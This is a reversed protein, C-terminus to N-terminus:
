NLFAKGAFSGVFKITITNDDNYTVEDPMQMNGASDVVTVSPRKELNHTIHWTDSPIEQEFVFHKDAGTIINDLEDRLGTIADIPHQDPLDRGSLDGHALGGVEIETKQTESTVEIETEQTESTVEIPTTDNIFRVEVM